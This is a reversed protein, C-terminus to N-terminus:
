FIIMEKVQIIDCTQFDERFSNLKETENELETYKPSNLFESLPKSEIFNFEYFEDTFRTIEIVGVDCLLDICADFADKSIALYALSKQIEIKGSNHTSCYKLMGSLTKILEHADTKKDNGRFVHVKQPSAKQVIQAFDEESCPSSLFILEDCKTIDFRNKVLSKISTYDSLEKMIENNELFVEAKNKTLYSNLMKFFNTKKRHDVLLTQKKANEDFDIDRSKIERNKIYINKIILQINKEGRFENIKPVFTIDAVDLIEIPHSSKNWIISEFISKDQAEFLMKLHQGSNGMNDIKKLVVNEMGFICSRNGEGFPELISLKEIFEITLDNPKLIADISIKRKLSNGELEQFVIQNIKASIEKISHKNLDVGFGGALEHGGFGEFYESMQSLVKYINLGKIGRISCRAKNEEKDVSMIFAPRNYAEVIKSALLGVIGIHWKEDALVIAKTTKLDIENYIRSVAENFSTDCM